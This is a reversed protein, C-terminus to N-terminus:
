KKERDFEWMELPTVLFVQYYRGHGRSIKALQNSQGAHFTGRVTRQTRFPMSEPCILIIGLGSNLPNQPSERVLGGNPTVEATQDNYNTWIYQYM